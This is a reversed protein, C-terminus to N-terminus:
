LLGAAVFPTKEAPRIRLQSAIGCLQLRRSAVGPGQLRREGTHKRKKKKKDGRERSLFLLLLLLPPRRSKIKGPAPHEAFSDGKIQQEHIEQLAGGSECATM